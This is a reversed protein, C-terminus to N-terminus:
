EWEKEVTSLFRSELTEKKDAKLKITIQVHVELKRDEHTQSQIRGGYKHRSSTLVAM